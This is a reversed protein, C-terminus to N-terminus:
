PIYRPFDFQTGCVAILHRIRWVTSDIYLKKRQPHNSQGCLRGPGGYHRYINHADIFDTISSDDTERIVWWADWTEDTNIVGQKIANPM